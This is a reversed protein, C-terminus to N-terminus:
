HAAIRNGSFQSIGMPTIQRGNLEGAQFSIAYNIKAQIRDGNMMLTVPINFKLEGADWRVEDAQKAGARALSSDWVVSLGDETETINLTVVSAGMRTNVTMEWDGLIEAPFSEAIAAMSNFVALTALLFLELVLGARTTPKSTTIAM